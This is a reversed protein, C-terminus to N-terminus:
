YIIILRGLQGKASLTIVKKADDKSIGNEIMASIIENHVCKRHAENKAREREIREKEAQEREIREREIRAAQEARQEAAIREREAQALAEQAQRDKEAQERKAREQEAKVANSVAQAEREKRQEEAIRAQEAKDRLAKEKRLDFLENEQLASDFAQLYEAQERNKREILEKEAQLKAAIMKQQYEWATLPQRVGDAIERICKEFEKRFTLDKDIVKKAELALAKSADLAPKICKIIQAAHSRCAERGKAKEMDFVLSGVQNKILDSLVNPEHHHKEVLSIDLSIVPLNEISM